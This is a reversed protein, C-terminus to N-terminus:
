HELAVGMKKSVFIQFLEQINKADHGVKGLLFIAHSKTTNKSRFINERSAWFKVKFLLHMKGQDKPGSKEQAEEGEKSFRLGLLDARIAM